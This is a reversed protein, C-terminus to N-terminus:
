HISFGYLQQRVTAYVSIIKYQDLLAYLSNSYVLIDLTLEMCIPLGFFLEFM